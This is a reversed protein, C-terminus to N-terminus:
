ELVQWIMFTNVHRDPLSRSEKVNLNKSISEISKVRSKIHEIPNGEDLHQCEENLIKLKTTIEDLAFQNWLLLQRWEKLEEVPPMSKM